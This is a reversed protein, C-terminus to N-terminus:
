EVEKRFRVRTGDAPWMTLGIGKKMKKMEERDVPELGAFEWCLRVLLYGAETLAFQQGICIRPGGLFPLWQWAPIRQEWREPKFELADEGYLDKRRQMLYVSFVITQGKQVAVPSKGDPGGGTALTSDRAVCRSNIPVTPHLRLAEQLVHQLYRCGKIQSFTPQTGKPFDRLVIDRLKAYIEPHIALEAVTWALLSATTDRGAALIALTQGSLEERDKTQTVLSALLSNKKEDGLKGEAALDLAKVVFSDTFKWIRKLAKRFKFSDAVWYFSQLRLRMITTDNAVQMAEVFERSGPVNTPWPEGRKARIAARQSEVSEGFLFDTATDITFNYLLQLMPTEATWGTSDIPGIAEFLADCARDTSQLDNINERNFHPRFLSRSHEWFAGDSTFISKGLLPYFINARLKGTEFDNFRTAFMHQLNAPENTSVLVSGDFVTKKVTHHDKFDEAIIDDIIDEGTTKMAFIRRLTAIGYPFPGSVDPADLCGNQKAFQKFRYSTIIKNVLLYTFVANFALLFGYTTTSFTVM